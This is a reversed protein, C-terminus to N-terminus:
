ESSKCTEYMGQLTGLNSANPNTGLNLFANKLNGDELTTVRIATEKLANKLLSELEANVSNIWEKYNQSSVSDGKEKAKNEIYTINEQRLKELDWIKYSKYIYVENSYAILFNCESKTLGAKNKGEFICGTLFLSSVFILLIKKLMCKIKEDVSSLRM